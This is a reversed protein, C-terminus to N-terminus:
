FKTRNPVDDLKKLIMFCEPHVPDVKAVIEPHEKFFDAYTIHNITKFGFKQFIKMAFTNVIM